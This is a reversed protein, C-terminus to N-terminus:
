IIADGGLLLYRAHYSATASLIPEFIPKTQQVAELVALRWQRPNFRREKSCSAPTQWIPETRSVYHVDTRNGAYLVSNSVNNEFSPDAPDYPRSPWRMHMNSHLYVRGRCILVFFRIGFQRGSLGDGEEVTLINDVAQQVVCEGEEIEDERELDARRLVRIGRGRSEGAAKVFFLLGAEQEIGDGVDKDIFTGNGYQHELQAQRISGFTAPFVAAADNKAYNQYLEYKNDV